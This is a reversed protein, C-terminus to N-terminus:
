RVDVLAASTILGIFVAAKHLGMFWLRVAGVDLLFACLAIAGFMAAAIAGDVENDAGKFGYRATLAISLAGLILAVVAFLTRISFLSRM